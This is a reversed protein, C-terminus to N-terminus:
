GVVYSFGHLLTRRSFSVTVWSALLKWGKVYGSIKNGHEYFGV